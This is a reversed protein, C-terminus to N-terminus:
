GEEHIYRMEVHPSGEFIFREGVVKFGFKEYFRVVQEQAEIQIEKGAYEKECFDIIKEMLMTGYGQGRIKESTVVRGFSVSDKKLFVRAYAYIENTKESIFFIHYSNQDIDDLEHYIRNQAVIFTDIRLKLINYFELVRIDSLKKIKWM